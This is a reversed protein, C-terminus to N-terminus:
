TLLGESYDPAPGIPVLRSAMGPLTPDPGFRIGHPAGDRASADRAASIAAHVLRASEQVGREGYAQLAAPIALVSVLLIISIVVLLEVLTFGPRALRKRRM